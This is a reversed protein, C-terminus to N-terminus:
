APAACRASRRSRPPSVASVKIKGILTFEDLIRQKEVEWLDLMAQGPARLVASESSGASGSGSGSGGADSLQPAGAANLRPPLPGPLGPAGPARVLIEHPQMPSSLPDDSDGMLMSLPDDDDADAAAAAVAPQPQPQTPPAAPGAGASSGISVAATADGAGKRDGDVADLLPHYDTPARPVACQSHRLQFDCELVRRCLEALARLPHIM